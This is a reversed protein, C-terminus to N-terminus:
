WSTGYVIGTGPTKAQRLKRARRSLTTEVFLVSGHKLVSRESLKNRSRLKDITTAYKDAISTLTEGRGVKHRIVKSEPIQEVRITQNALPKLVLITDGPLITEHRDSM